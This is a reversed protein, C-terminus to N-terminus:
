SPRCGATMARHVEVQAAFLAPVLAPITRMPQVAQEGAVVRNWTRAYALAEILSYVRRGSASVFLPRPFEGRGHWDRLRRASVGLVNAVDDVTLCPMELSGPGYLGTVPTVKATAVVAAEDAVYDRLQSIGAAQHAARKRDRVRNREYERREPRSAYRM